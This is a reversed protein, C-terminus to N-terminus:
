AGLVSTIHRSNQFSPACEDKGTPIKPLVRVNLGFDLYFSDSYIGAKRM